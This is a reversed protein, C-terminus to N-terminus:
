NKRLYQIKTTEWVFEFIDSPKIEPDLDSESIIHILHDYEEFTDRLWAKTYIEPEGAYNASTLFM